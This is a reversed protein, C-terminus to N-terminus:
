FGNGKFPVVSKVHEVSGFVDSTSFGAVILSQPTGFGNTNRFVGRCRDTTVGNGPKAFHCFVGHSNQVYGGISQIFDGTDSVKITGVCTRNGKMAKTYFRVTIGNQTNHNGKSGSCTGTNQSINPSTSSIISTPTFAATDTAYITRVKKGTTAATKGAHAAPAAFHGPIMALAPVAGVAGIAYRIKKNM